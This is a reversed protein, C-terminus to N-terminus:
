VDVARGEESVWSGDCQVLNCSMKAVCREDVFEACFHEVVLAVLPM